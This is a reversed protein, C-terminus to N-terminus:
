LQDGIRGSSFPFVFICFIVFSFGYKVSLVILRLRICVIWFFNLVGICRNVDLHHIGSFIQGTNAARCTMYFIKRRDWYQFLIRVVVAFDGNGSKLNLRRLSNQHPRFHFNCYRRQMGLFGFMTKNYISPNCYVFIRM